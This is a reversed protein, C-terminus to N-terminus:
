GSVGERVVGSMNEKVGKEHRGSKGAKEDLMKMVANLAKERRRRNRREGLAREWPLSFISPREDCHNVIPLIMRAIERESYGSDSLAKAMCAVLLAKDGREVFSKSARELNIVLEDFRESIQQSHPELYSEDYGPKFNRFVAFAALALIAWEAFDFLGGHLYPKAFEMVALAMLAFMVYARSSAIGRAIAGEFGSALTTLALYALVAAIAIAALSSYRYVLMYASFAAVLFGICSTIHRRPLDSAVVALAILLALLYIRNVSVPYYMQLNFIVTDAIIYFAIALPFPRLIRARGRMVLGAVLLAYVTLLTTTSVEFLVRGFYLTQHTLVWYLAAFVVTLTILGMLM